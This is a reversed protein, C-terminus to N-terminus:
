SNAIEKARQNAQFIADIFASRVGNKELATYGASTTGAPSMVADKLIAPSEYEYLTDGFGYFLGNVIQQADDRKLGCNVGADALSEAVLALFAPGSGAIGTAIDLEKEDKLWLTKGICNLVRDVLDKNDSDGVITTMSKLISASLNPMARVYSKSKINDKLTSVKTGALVSILLGSEGIIKQSVDLLAYPKVALVINKNTIDFDDLLNTEINSSIDSKLEDLKKQNRGVVEVEFGSNVFGIIMSKAMKGYGIITIKM